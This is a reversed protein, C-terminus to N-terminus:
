QALETLRECLVRDDPRTSEYRITMRCFGTTRCARRKSMGHTAVLHAVANRKEAPTVM